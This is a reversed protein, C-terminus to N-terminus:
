HTQQQQNRLLSVIKEKQNQSLKSYSLAYDKYAKGRIITYITNSAVNFYKCLWSRPVISFEENAFIMYVQEQSLKRKNQIITTNVKDEYFNSSDLFIQYIKKREELPLREYEEILQIHNEKKKIRSITATTTEFMKALIAGPRSCFELAACINFIDSKTFHTGGNSPGFNGGENQNYGNYYSDYKQIYYQEKKSIEEYSCEGEFVVEFIFNEAGYINYEKQLFSNDHHNYKLDTFHRSRRRKINNTLGIYKKHNLINEIKYIYYIM